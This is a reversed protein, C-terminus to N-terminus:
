DGFPGNQWIGLVNGAPDRFTSVRLGGEDYPPTVVDGGYSLRGNGFLHRQTNTDASSHQDDEAV